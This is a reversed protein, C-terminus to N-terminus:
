PIGYQSPGPMLPLRTQPAPLALQDGGNIANRITAGMLKKEEDSVRQYIALSSSAKHGTVAMIQPASYGKGLITAGTVRVSHNTYLASLPVAKSLKQMFESLVNRGIPRNQYWVDDSELFVERPYQWLRDTNPNLKGVYKLFNNVPCNDTNVNDAPMHGTVLTKDNEKHNKTSEDEAKYIYREGNPYQGLKFTSKTMKEMNENARRCFYLRINMQCRNLLGQPTTPSLHVSMYLRTLDVNSILAYHDTSGKGHVKLERLATKKRSMPKISNM